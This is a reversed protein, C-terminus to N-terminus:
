KDVGEFDECIVHMCNTGTSVYHKPFYSDGFKEQIRANSEISSCNGNEDFWVPFPELGMCDRQKWFCQLNQCEQTKPCQYIQGYKIDMRFRAGNEMLTNM